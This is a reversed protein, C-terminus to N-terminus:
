PTGKAGGPRVLVYGERARREQAEGEGVGAPTTRPEEDRVCGGVWAEGQAEGEGM